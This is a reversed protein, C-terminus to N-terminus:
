NSGRVVLIPGVDIIQKGYGLQLAVRSKGPALEQPVKGKFKFPTWERTVPAQSAAFETYPADTLQFLVKVTGHKAKSDPAIRLMVVSNISDGKALPANIISNLGAKWPDAAADTVTVRVAKGGPIGADNILEHKQAPGYVQHSVAEVKNIPQASQAFVATLMITAAVVGLAAAISQLSSM